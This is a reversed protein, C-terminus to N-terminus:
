IILMMTVLVSYLCKKLPSSFQIDHFRYYGEEKKFIIIGTKDDIDITNIIIIEDEKLEEQFLLITKKINKISEGNYNDEVYKIFMFNIIIFFILFLFILKNYLKKM